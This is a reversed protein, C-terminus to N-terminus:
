SRGHYFEVKIKYAINKFLEKLGDSQKSLEKMWMIEEGDKLEEGMLKLCDNLILGEYKKHCKKCLWHRGEIDTGGIYKPIDHSCDLQPEEFDGDCKDCKM